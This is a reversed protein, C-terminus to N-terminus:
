TYHSSCHPVQDKNPAPSATGWGPWSHQLSPRAGFIQSISPTQGPFATRPSLSAPAARSAAPSARIRKAFRKSHWKWPLCLLLSSSSCACTPLAAPRPAYPCSERETPRAPLHMEGPPQRLQRLTGLSSSLLHHFPLLAGPHCWAAGPVQPRAADRLGEQGLAAGAELLGFCLGPCGLVRLCLGRTPILRGWGRAVGGGPVGSSGGAERPVCNDRWGDREDKCLGLIVTRNGRTGGSSVGQPCIHAQPTPPTLM